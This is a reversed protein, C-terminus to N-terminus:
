RSNFGPCRTLLGGNKRYVIPGCYEEILEGYTKTTPIEGDDREIVYFDVLFEVYEVIELEANEINKNFVHINIETNFLHWEGNVYEKNFIM